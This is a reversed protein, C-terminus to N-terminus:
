DFALCFRLAQWLFFLFDACHFPKNKIHLFFLQEDSVTLHKTPESKYFDSKVHSHTPASTNLQELRSPEEIHCSQLQVSTEGPTLSSYPLTLALGTQPTQVSLNAWIWSMWTSDQEAKHLAAVGRILMFRLSNVVTANICLVWCVKIECLNFM